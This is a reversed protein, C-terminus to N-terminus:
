SPLSRSGKKMGVMATACGGFLEYRYFVFQHAQFSPLLLHGNDFRTLYENLLLYPRWDAGLVESLPPVVSTLYFDMVRRLPPSTPRSLEVFGFIGGPRLIRHIEQLLADFQAATLTTLGYACVVADFSEDPLGTACADAEHLVVASGAPLRDRREQARKLMEPTCDIATISGDPGIRPLLHPWLEGGGTMLDCVAMGPMLHMHTVLHARLRDSLGLSVLRSTQDYRQSLASFLHQQFLPDYLDTNRDLPPRKQRAERGLAYQRALLNAHFWSYICIVLVTGYGVGFTIFIYIPRSFTHRSFKGPEYITFIERMLPSAMALLYFSGIVLAINLLGASFRYLMRDRLPWFVLRALIASAAGCLSGFLMGTGLGIIGGILCSFVLNLVLRGLESNYPERSVLLLNQILNWTGGYAAGIFLGNRLGKDFSLQLLERAISGFDAHQPAPSHNQWFLLADTQSDAKPPLM